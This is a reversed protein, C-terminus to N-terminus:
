VPHIEGTDRFLIQGPSSPTEQAILFHVHQFYISVKLTNGPIPHTSTDSLSRGPVFFSDNIKNQKRTANDEHLM